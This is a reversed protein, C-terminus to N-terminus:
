PKENITECVLMNDDTRVIKGSSTVTHEDISLNWNNENYLDRFEELTYVKDDEFFRVLSEESNFDILRDIATLDLLKM